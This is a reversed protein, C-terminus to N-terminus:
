KDTVARYTPCTSFFGLMKFVFFLCFAYSAGQTKKKECQVM